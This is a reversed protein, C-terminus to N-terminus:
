KNLRKTIYIYNMIRKLLIGAGTSQNEIEIM